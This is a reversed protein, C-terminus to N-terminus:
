MCLRGCLSLCVSVNYQVDCVVLHGCVSCGCASLSLVCLAGTINVCWADGVGTQTAGALSQECTAGLNEISLGEHELATNLDHLRIGAQFTM